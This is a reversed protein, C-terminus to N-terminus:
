LNTPIHLRFETKVTVNFDMPKNQVQIREVDIILLIKHNQSPPTPSQVLAKHMCPEVSVVSGGMLLMKHYVSLLYQNLSNNVPERM